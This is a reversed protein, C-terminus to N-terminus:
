TTVPQHQCFPVGCAGECTCDRPLAVRDRAGCWRCGPGPLSPRRRGEAWSTAAAIVAVALAGLLILGGIAWGNAAADPVTV